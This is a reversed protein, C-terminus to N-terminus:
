IFFIHKICVYFYAIFDEIYKIASNILIQIKYNSININAKVCILDIYLLKLIYLHTWDFENNTEFFSSTM